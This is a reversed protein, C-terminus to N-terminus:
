NTVFYSDAYGLKKVKDLLAARDASTGAPGVIVRWFSKGSSSGKKITPVVGSDRLANGAKKANAEESFIGIQIFPKALTSAPAPTSAKAASASADSEVRAIAAEAAGIPDLTQTIIKSNKVNAKASPAATAVPKAQPKPKPRATAKPTEAKAKEEAEPEPAAKDKTEPAEVPAPSPPDVPVEEKRLATVSLMTPTGAVIKLASAADSSVLLRPGPNERERDFLTGIVFAGNTENRIIVREPQAVGPYAVWVGGLDPRGAWIGNEKAQFVEPREVDREVLRTSTSSNDPSDEGPGTGTTQCAAVLAILSFVALGRGISRYSM